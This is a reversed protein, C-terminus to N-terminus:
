PRHPLISKDSLVDGRFCLEYTLARGSRAAKGGAARWARTGAQM